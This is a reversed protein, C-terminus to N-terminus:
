VPTAAGPLEFGAAQVAANDAALEQRDLDFLGALQEATIPTGSQQAVHIASLAVAGLSIALAANPALLPGAIKVLSGLIAAASGAGLAAGQQAALASAVATAVLAAQQLNKASAESM